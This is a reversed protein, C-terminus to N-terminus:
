KKLKKLLAKDEAKEKSFMKMDEKLHKAVKKDKCSSMSKKAMDGAKQEM